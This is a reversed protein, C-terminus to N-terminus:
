IVASVSQLVRRAVDQDPDGVNVVVKGRVVYGGWGGDPLAESAPETHVGPGTAPDFTESALFWLGADTTCPDLASPGWHESFGQCSSTDLREWEPPVEVSVGRYSVVVWGDDATGTSRSVPPRRDPEETFLRYGAYGALALGVVLVVMVAVRLRNLAVM